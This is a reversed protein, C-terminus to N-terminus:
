KKKWRQAEPKKGNSSQGASGRTCNHVSFNSTSEMVKNEAKSTSANLTEGSCLQRKDTETDENSNM